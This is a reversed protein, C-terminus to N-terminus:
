AQAGLQLGRQEAAQRSMLVVAAAADNVGAANGATKSGNKDFAPRLSRDSGGARRRARRRLQVMVVNVLAVVALAAMLAANLRYGVRLLLVALVASVIVGFGALM